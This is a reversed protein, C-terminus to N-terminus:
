GTFSACFELLAFYGPRSQGGELSTFAELLRDPIPDGVKHWLQGVGQGVRWFQSEKFRTAWFKQWRLLTRRSNKFQQIVYLRLKESSSSALIIALTIYVHAGLYRVSPPTERKRCGERRCCFSFRVDFNAIIEAPVGRPQRLYNAQDLAGGCQPCGGAKVKQATDQDNKLLLEFFSTDTYPNHFM